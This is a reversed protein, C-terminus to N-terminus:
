LLMARQIVCCNQETRVCAYVYIHIYVDIYVYM